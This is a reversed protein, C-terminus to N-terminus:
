QANPATPEAFASTGTDRHGSSGAPHLLKMSSQEQVKPSSILPADVGFGPMVQRHLAGGRSVDVSIYVNACTSSYKNGMPSTDNATVRRAAGPANGLARLCRRHKVFRSVSGCLHFSIKWRWLPQITADEGRSM